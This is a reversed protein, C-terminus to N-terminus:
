KSMYKYTTFMYRALEVVMAGSYSLYIFNYIPDKRNKDSNCVILLVEDEM